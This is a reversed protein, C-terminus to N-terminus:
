IKFEKGFILIYKEASVKNVYEGLYKGDIRLTGMWGSEINAISFLGLNTFNLHFVPSFYYKKSELIPKANKFTRLMYHEAYPDKSNEIKNLFETESTNSVFMAIVVIGLIIYIVKRM